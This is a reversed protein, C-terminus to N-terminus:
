HFLGGPILFQLFAYLFFYSVLAFITNSIRHKAKASKQPDGEAASYEIGGMILSIVVIIGVMGSLVDLIPQIYSSVLDVDCNSTDSTNCNVPPPTTSPPTAAWASSPMLILAVGM